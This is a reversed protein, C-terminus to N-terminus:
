VISSYYYSDYQQVYHQVDPTRQAVTTTRCLAQLTGRLGYVVPIIGPVLPVSCCWRVFFKSRQGTYM